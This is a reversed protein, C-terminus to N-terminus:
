KDKRNESLKWDVPLCATDIVAECVTDVAMPLGIFPISILNEWMFSNSTSPSDSMMQPFSGVVTLAAAQRSCQYVGEIRPATTPFREYMNICGGLMCVVAGVFILTMLGCLWGFWTLIGDEKKAHRIEYAM